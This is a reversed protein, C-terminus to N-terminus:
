RNGDDGYVYATYDGSRISLEDLPATISTQWSYNGNRDPGIKSAAGMGFLVPHTPDGVSALWVKFVPPVPRGDRDVGPSTLSDSGNVTAPSLTVSATAN